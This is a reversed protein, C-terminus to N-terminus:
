FPLAKAICGAGNRPSPQRGLASAISTSLSTLSRSPPRDTTVSSSASVTSCRDELYGPICGVSPIDREADEVLQLAEQREPDVVGAAGRDAVQWASAPHQAHQDLRSPREAKGVDAVM